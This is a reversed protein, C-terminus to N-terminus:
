NVGVPLKKVEVGFKLQNQETKMSAQEDILSAELQILTEKIVLKKRAKQKAEKDKLYKAWKDNFANFEEFYNLETKLGALRKKRNNIGTKCLKEEEKNLKRKM